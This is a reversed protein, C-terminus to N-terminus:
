KLIYVLWSYLGLLILVSGICALTFVFFKLASKPSIVMRGSQMTRRLSGSFVAATYSYYLVLLMVATKFFVFVLYRLIGVSYAYESAGVFGSLFSVSIGCRLGCYLLVLETVIYNFAAFSVLFIAGICIVDVASYKLLCEVHDYITACNIFLNEFHSSVDVTFGEGFDSSLSRSVIIGIVFAVATVIFFQFAIKLREVRVSDRTKSIGNYLNIDM